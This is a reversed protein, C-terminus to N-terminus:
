EDAAPRRKRPGLPPNLPRDAMHSLHRQWLGLLEVLTARQDRSLGEAGAREGSRMAPLLGDVVATGAPTVVVLIKRRDTPHTTREVYGRRELTDLLSTMSATTVLLREAIVNSPLPEGAGDLVALVETASPSLSTVSARHRNLHTMLMTCTHVLNACAETASPDAGPFERTFGRDVRIPYDTM